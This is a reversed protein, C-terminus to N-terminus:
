HFLVSSKLLSSNMNVTLAQNGNAQFYDIEFTHMNAQLFKVNSKSQAGHLGDNNVLIAGDVFLNAGDDSTTDFEVWGSQTIAIMGTCKLIFWNQYVSQIPLPLIPLGLNTSTNSVNFNGTYLFTGINVLGTAGVIQITTTPVTYLTCTLGNTVPAQGLATKYQNYASVLDTVPDDVVPAPTPAPPAQPGEPGAVGPVGQQGSHLAVGCGALFSFMVCLIAYKM